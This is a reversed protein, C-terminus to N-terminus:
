AFFAGVCLCACHDNVPELGFIHSFAVLQFDRSNPACVSVGRFPNDTVSHVVGIERRTIALMPLPDRPLQSSIASQLNFHQYSM